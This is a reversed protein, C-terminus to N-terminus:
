KARVELRTSPDRTARPAEELAQERLLSHFIWFTLATRRQKETTKRFASPANCQMQM